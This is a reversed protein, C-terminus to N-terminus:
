PQPTHRALTVWGRAAAYMVAETRSSVGIKNFINTLHGEVTRASVSLRAAIEKTRAGTAALRLVELERSSLVENDGVHGQARTVLARGISGHLVVEGRAVAHIAVILERAHATKLLYGSAGAALAAMVYDEDDYASLVLAHPGAPGLKIRRIVEIGNLIPLDVDVLVIDPELEEAMAIATPGDEAEGVVRLSPDQELMERTGERVLAHDEALLLRIHEM